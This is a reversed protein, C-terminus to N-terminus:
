LTVKGDVCTVSDGGLWVQGEADRSVHVRGARGLCQGQAALYRYVRSVFKFTRRRSDQPDDRIFERGVGAVYVNGAQDGAIGSM